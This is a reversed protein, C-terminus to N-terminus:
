LFLGHPHVKTNPAAQARVLWYGATRNAITAARHEIRGNREINKRSFGPDRVIISKIIGRGNELGLKVASIVVAHNMRPRSQYSILVPRQEQLERLLVDPPPAGPFLVASVVYHRGNQDIGWNNLNRTMIDFGAPKNPLQRFKDIGFSRRVIEEQSITVGYYRLIMRISAAWCWMTNRQAAWQKDLIDSNIGIYM